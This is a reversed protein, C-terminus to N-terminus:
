FNEILNKNNPFTIMNIADVCYKIQFLCDDFANHTKETDWNYQTLDIESLDVLTRIDRVTVYSWPTPRGAVQYLFGLIPIDFTAHCWIRDSNNEKDHGKHIPDVYIFSSIMDLAEEVSSVDETLLKNFKEPNTKNWWEITSDTYILGLDEQEKGSIRVQMKDIIEGTYRNFKVMAVQLIISNTTNGMTEIDLM